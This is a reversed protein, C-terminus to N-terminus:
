ISCYSSYIIIGTSLLKIWKSNQTGFNKIKRFFLTFNLMTTHQQVTSTPIFNLYANKFRLFNESSM